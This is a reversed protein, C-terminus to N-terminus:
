IGGELGVRLRYPGQQLADSGAVVIYLDGAGVGLRVSNSDACVPPEGQGCAGNYVAFVLDVGPWAALEVVLDAGAVGAVRYVRDGGQGPEAACPVSVDATAGVTTGAVEVTEGMGVEILQADGCAQGGTNPSAAEITTELEFAGPACGGCGAGQGVVFYYSGPLLRPWSFTAVSGDGVEEREPSVCELLGDANACDQYIALAPHLPSDGSPRAVVQVDRTAPLELLYIQEGTGLAMCQPLFLDDADSIDGQVTGAGILPAADCAQERADGGDLAEVTLEFPGSEGQGAGDVVLVYEGAPLLSEFSLLGGGTACATDGPIGCFELLGLVAEFGQPQLSARVTLPQTLAFRYYLDGAGSLDAQSCSAVANTSLAGGTDGSTTLTEGAAALTGLSRAQDCEEHAPHLQVSMEFAGPGPAELGDVIIFHEGADLAVREVPDSGAGCAEEVPDVCPQQRVSVVTPRDSTEIHVSIAAPEALTLSYVSEAAESSQGAACGIVSFLGIEDLTSGQVDARGSVFELPTAADCKANADPLAETTVQLRFPGAQDAASGDVVVLYEGAEVDDVALEAAAECALTVPGICPGSLLSLAPAFALAGGDPASLSLAVSSRQPLTLRYYLDGGDAGCGAAGITDTAYSTDAVAEATGEALALAEASDCEDNGPRLPDARLEVSYAGGNGGAASDVVLYYEGAQLVAADPSGPAVCLLADGQACPQTLYALGGFASVMSAELTMPVPVTVRHVVDAGDAAVAPCRDGSPEYDHAAAETSGSATVLGGGAPLNTLSPEACTDPVPGGVPMRTLTLSFQAHEDASAGDVFLWYSGVPLTALTDFNGPGCALEPGAACGEGRLYLAPSFLGNVDARLRAPRDLEFTYVVDRGAASGAALGCGTAATDPSALTTAGSARAVDNSFVLQQPASCDDNAPAYAVSVGLDFVGADGAGAGDVVLHYPGPPLEGPQLFGVASCDIPEAACDAGYLTLNAAFGAEVNATFFAPEDLVVRYALDPSAQGGCVTAYDDRAGQTSGAFTAVGDVLPLELATDCVENDQPSDILLRLTYAGTLRASDVVLYYTDTAPVLFSLASEAESCALAPAQGCEGQLYVGGTFGAGLEATLQMGAQLELAYVVDPGGTEFGCGPARFDDAAGDSDGEVQVLGGAPPIQVSLPEACDDGPAGSVAAVEVQFSGAGDAGQGDVVLLYEGASLLVDNAPEAGTACARELPAACPLSLLSAVAPRQSELVRVSVTSQEALVIRWALEASAQAGAPDGCSQAAFVADQGLTSGAVVVPQAGVDLREAALCKQAQTRAQAPQADLSVTLTGRDGPGAGDVVLHYPGAPLGLVQGPARGCALLENGCAVGYLLYTVPFDAEAAISLDSDEGLEFRYVVDPAGAGGCGVDQYDDNALFTDTEASGQGDDDLRILEPRACLDNSAVPMFDAELEFGMAGAADAPADVILFYRGAPLPETRLMRDPTSCARTAGTGCPVEMLYVVADVDSRVGANVAMPTALDFAYVVDPGLGAADACAGAGPAYLGRAGALTGQASVRGGEAPVELEEPATCRDNDPAPTPTRDLTIQYAGADAGLGDVFLHYTGLPLPQEVDLENNGCAVEVGAACDGSRLYLALPTDSAVIASLGAPEGLRIRYMVDAGQASAQALGCGSAAADAAALELSGALVAQDDVFTVDAPSACTDHAPPGERTANLTFEGTEGPPGQVILHYTGPALLDTDLAPGCALEPGAACNAGRLALTGEFGAELRGQLRAQELLTFEYVLEPGGAAGCGLQLTDTSGSLASEVQALGEPGFHLDLARDCDDGPLPGDPRSTQLLLGFGGEDGAADLYGEAVIVYQGAPLADMRLEAGASCALESQAEYCASRISLSGPRVTNLLRVHVARPEVIRFSFVSEPLDWGPQPSCSAQLVDDRGLNDGDLPVDEALRVAADCPHPRQEAPVASASLEFPGESQEDLGTVLVLYSGAPVRRLVEGSAAAAVEACGVETLDDCGATRLSLVADFAPDLTLTVESEADVSFEYFVDPGVGPDGFAGCESGLHGLSNLTTAQIEVADADLLGLDQAQVCTDNAPAEVAPTVQAALLYAGGEEGVADVFVFYEGPELRPLALAGQGARCALEGGPDACAQRVYVVPEFEASVTFRVAAAADLVFRHAAEPGAGGCSGADVAPAGLTGREVVDGAVLPVPEDCATPPETLEVALSFPGREDATYTDVFLFYEGPALSTVTLEGRDSCALKAAEGCPGRTLRLLHRFEAESTVRLGSPRDVQLRYVADVGLGIQEGLGCDSRYSSSALTLDGEAQSVGPNTEPTIDIAGACTDNAPPEPPPDLRLLLQFAGSAFRDGGDVVLHYRGPQLPLGEVRGAASCQQEGEGCTEGYLAVLGAWGDTTLRATLVAESAVDFTYILDRALDPTVLDGCRQPGLTRSAHTTDGQLTIEEGLPLAVEVPEACVDGPLLGHAGPEALVQYGGSGSVFGDVFLTYSGAELEPFYLIRPSHSCALETGAETCSSRLSVMADFTPDLVTVRLSTAEPLEIRHLAEPAVHGPGACSPLFDATVGATSGDVPAGLAIAEAADCRQQLFDGSGEVEVQLDYPLGLQGVAASVQLLYEGAPIEAFLELGDENPRGSALPAEGDAEHLALTFAEPDGVLMALLESPREVTLAFWDQDLPCINLGEFLADQENLRTATAARDNGGGQELRDGPCFGEVLRLELEYPGQQGPRGAVRVLYDGDDPAAGLSVQETARASDSLQLPVFPDDPSFIALSLDVGAEFAISAVLGAGEAVSVAFWDETLDCRVLGAHTGPELTVADRFSTNGEHEDDDCDPPAACRGDNCVRVGLCDDDDACFPPEECVRRDLEEDQVCLQNGPCDDHGICQECRGSEEDCLLPACQRDGTCGAPPECQGGDGCVWDGPCDEDGFCREAPRQCEGDICVRDGLCDLDEFCLRPEVCQHTWEDCDMRPSPCGGEECPPHCRGALCAWGPIPCNGEEDCPDPEICVQAVPSCVRGQPCDAPGCPDTCSGEHCLRDGHCDENSECPDAEVCYGLQEDCTQNGPCPPDCVAPGGEDPDPRVDTGPGLDPQDPGSDRGLDAPGLDAEPGADVEDAPRCHGLHCRQGAACEDDGECPPGLDGQPAPDAASDDDGCGSAMLLGFALALPLLRLLTSNRM